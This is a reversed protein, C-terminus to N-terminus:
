RMLSKQLPDPMGEVRVKGIRGLSSSKQMGSSVHQKMVKKWHKGMDDATRSGVNKSGNLSLGHGRGGLDVLRDMLDFHDKAEAWAVPTYEKDDKANMEAGVELLLMTVAHHGGAAAAHLPTQRKINRMNVDAGWEVLRCVADVDDIGAAIHLATQGEADASNVEVGYLHLFEMIDYRKNRTVINFPTDGKKTQASLNAGRRYCLKALGVNGTQCAYELLTQETEVDRADIETYELLRELMNMLVTGNRTIIQNRNFTKLKEKPPEFAAKLDSFPDRVERPESRTSRNKDSAKLMQKQDDNQTPTARSHEVAPLNPSTKPTSSEAVVDNTTVFILDATVARVSSVDHGGDGSEETLLLMKVLAAEMKRLTSKDMTGFSAEAVDANRVQPHGTEVLFRWMSRMVQAILEAGRPPLKTPGLAANVHKLIADPPPAAAAAVLGENGHLDLLDLPALQKANQREMIATMFYGLSRLSMRNDALSLFALQPASTILNCLESCSDMTLQNGALDLTQLSKCDVLVQTLTSFAMDNIGAGRLLAQQMDKHQMWHEVVRMLKTSSSANGDDTGGKDKEFSIGKGKSSSGSQALVIGDSLDQVKGALNQAESQAMDRRMVEEDLQKTLKAMRSRMSALEASKQEIQESYAKGASREREMQQEYDAIERQRKEQLEKLEKKLAAYEEAAPSDAM